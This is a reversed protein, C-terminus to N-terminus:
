IMAEMDQKTAGNNIFGRVDKCPLVIVRALPIHAKLMKAGALGPADKDAVIIPKAIKEIKLYEVIMAVCASCSPRGIGQMGIHYLAALDTPGEVICFPEDKRPPQGTFLGSKSGTFAYKDGTDSRLRFGIFRGRADFMPWCWADETWAWVCGTIQLARASIGLERGLAALQEDTTTRQFNVWMDGLHPLVDDVKKVQRPVPAPLAGGVLAFIRKRHESDQFMCCGYRGDPYVVLHDGDKDHGLEQCAPCQATSKTYGPKHNKLKSVDLSM